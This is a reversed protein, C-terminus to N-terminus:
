DLNKKVWDDIAKVVVELHEPRMKGEYLSYNPRDNLGQKRLAPRDSEILYKRAAFSIYPQGKIYKEPSPHKPHLSFQEVDWWQDAPTHKVLVTRLWGNFKIELIFYMYCLYCCANQALKSYKFSLLQIYNEM